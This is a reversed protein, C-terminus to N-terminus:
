FTEYDEQWIMNLLNYLCQNDVINVFVRGNKEGIEYGHDLSTMYNLMENTVSDLEFKHKRIFRLFADHDHKFIAVVWFKNDKNWKCETVSSQLDNKVNPNFNFRVAFKSDGIYRIERPIITSKYLPRRYKPNEILSLLADLDINCATIFNLYKNVIKWVVQAQRESLGKGSYIKCSIDDIFTRDYPIDIGLYVRKGTVKDIVSVKTHMNGSIFEVLDELTQPVFPKSKNNNFM